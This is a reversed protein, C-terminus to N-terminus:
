IKHNLVRSLLSFLRHIFNDFCKNVNLRTIKETLYLRLYQTMGCVYFNKCKYFM